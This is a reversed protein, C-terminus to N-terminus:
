NLHVTRASVVSKGEVEAVCIYRSFSPLGVFVASLQRKPHTNTSRDFLMYRHYVAKLSKDSPFKDFFLRLDNTNVWLDHDEDEVLEFTWHRHKVPWVHYDDLTPRVTPGSVPLKKM